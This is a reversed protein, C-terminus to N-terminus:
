GMWEVWVVTDGSEYTIFGERLSVAYGEEDFCLGEDGTQDMIEANLEERSLKGHFRFLEQWGNKKNAM